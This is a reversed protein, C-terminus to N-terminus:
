GPTYRWCWGAAACYAPCGGRPPQPPFAGARVGRVVREVHALALEIAGAVGQHDGDEDQHQFDGLRLGGPKAGLISWYLGEVPQGFGLSRQVALAYLPLQLRRGELLDQKDLGRAGTKYDVIRLEGAANHDVRDIIGGLWV